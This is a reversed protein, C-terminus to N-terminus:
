GVCVIGISTATCPHLIPHQARWISIEHMIQRKNMMLLREIDNALREIAPAQTHAHAPTAVSAHASQPASATAGAVSLAYSQAHTRTPKRTCLTRTRAHPHANAHTHMHARLFAHTSSHTRANQWLVRRTPLARKHHRCVAREIFVEMWTVFM